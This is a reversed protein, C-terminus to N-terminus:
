VASNTGLLDSTSWHVKPVNVGCIICLFLQICSNYSTFNILTVQVCTPILAQRIAM